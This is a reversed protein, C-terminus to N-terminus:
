SGRRRRMASAVVALPIAAGPEPVSSLDFAGFDPASASGWNGLVADLDGQEVQGNGNLDGTIWSVDADPDALNNMGWNQLVADLDGQEVQGNLNADGYLARQLYVHKLDYTVALATGALEPIDDAFVDLSTGSGSPIFLGVTDFVGGLGAPDTGTEDLIIRPTYLPAVFDFQDAYNIELRGGDLAIGDADVRDVRDDSASTGWDVEVRSGPEVTLTADELTLVSGGFSGGFVGPAFIGGAENVVDARSTGRGQFWGRNRVTDGGLLATGPTGFGPDLDVIGDNVWHGAGPVDVVLTSIAGLEITGM